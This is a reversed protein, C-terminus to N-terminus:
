NISFLASKSHRPLRQHWSGYKAFGGGRAGAGRVVAGRAASWLEKRAVPDLRAYRAELRNLVGVVEAQVLSPGRAADDLVALADAGAEGADCRQLVRRCAGAAGDAGLANSKLNLENLVKNERTIAGVAFLKKIALQLPEPERARM